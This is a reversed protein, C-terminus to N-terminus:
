KPKRGATKAGRILGISRGIDELDRLRRSTLARKARAKRTENGHITRAKACRQRGEQSKPGTSKGGHFRCKTKGTSAPARCQQMTRKSRALCRQCTIRGGLTKLTQELPLTESMNKYKAVRELQRNTKNRVPGRSRFGVSMDNSSFDLIDLNCNKFNNSKAWIDLYDVWGIPTPSKSQLNKNM